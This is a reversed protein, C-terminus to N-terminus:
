RELVRVLRLLHTADRRATFRGRRPRHVRTARGAAAREAPAHDAGGSQGLRREVGSGGDGDARRQFAARAVAVRVVRLLRADRKSRGVGFGVGRLLAVVGRRCRLVVHQVPSDQV